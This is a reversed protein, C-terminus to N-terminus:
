QKIFAIENIQIFIRHLVPVIILSALSNELTECSTLSPIWDQVHNQKKELPKAKLRLELGSRWRM